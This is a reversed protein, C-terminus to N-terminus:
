VELRRFYQFNLEITEIVLENNQANFASISWKVPYAQIFSWAELPDHNGNLLTVTVTKPEFSFSEVANKFWAILNSGILMGRKLVLKEYTIRSPLRHVFRNEGGENHTEEGVSVNLGSVEQFRIDQGGSTLDEIDVRFHFGVPPYSTALAM